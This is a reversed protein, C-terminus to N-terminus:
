WPLHKCPNGRKYNTLTTGGFTKHSVGGQQVTSKENKDTPKKSKLKKKKKKLYKQSIPCQKPMQSQTDM